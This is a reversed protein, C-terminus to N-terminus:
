EVLSECIYAAHQALKAKKVAKKANDHDYLDVANQAHERAYKAENKATYNQQAMASVVSTRKLDINKAYNKGKRNVIKTMKVVKLKCQSLANSTLGTCYDFSKGDIEFNSQEFMSDQITARKDFVEPSYNEDKLAFEAVKLDELKYYRADQMTNELYQRLESNGGAQLARHVFILSVGAILTLVGTVAYTIRFHAFEMNIRRKVGMSCVYSLFAILVICNTLAVGIFNALGTKPDIYRNIWTALVLIYVKV